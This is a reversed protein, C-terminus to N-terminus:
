SPAGRREVADVEDEDGVVMGIMEVRAQGNAVQFGPGLGDEDAGASATSAM